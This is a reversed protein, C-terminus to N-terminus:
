PVNNLNQTMISQVQNLLTSWWDRVPSTKFHLIRNSVFTVIHPRSRSGKKKMKPQKVTCRHVIICSSHWSSYDSFAKWFTSGRFKRPGQETSCDVGLYSWGKQSQNLWQAFIYRHVLSPWRPRPHLTSRAPQEASTRNFSRSIPRCLSCRAGYVPAARRILVSEARCIYRAVTTGCWTEGQWYPGRRFSSLPCVLSRQRRRHLTIGLWSRKLRATAGKRDPSFYRGSKLLNREENPRSAIRDMDVYM